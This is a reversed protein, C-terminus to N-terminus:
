LSPSSVQFLPHGQLKLSKGAQPLVTRTEGDVFLQMLKLYM